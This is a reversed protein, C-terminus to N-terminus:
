FRFSWRRRSGVKGQLRAPRLWGGRCRSGSSCFHVCAHLADEAGPLALLPRVDAQPLRPPCGGAERRLWPPAPWHLPASPSPDTPSVLLPRVHRRSVFTERAARYLLDRADEKMELSLSVSPPTELTPAPPAQGPHGPLTSLTCTVM